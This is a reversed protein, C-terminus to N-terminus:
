LSTLQFKVWDTKADKIYDIGDHFFNPTVSISRHIINDIHFFSDFNLSFRLFFGSYACCPLLKIVVYFYLRYLKVVLYVYSKM